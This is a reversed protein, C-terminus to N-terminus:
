KQDAQGPRIVSGDAPDVLPLNKHPSDPITTYGKEIEAHERTTSPPAFYTFWTLGLGPPFFVGFVVALWVQELWAWFAGAVGAAALMAWGVIASRREFTQWWLASRGPLLEVKAM